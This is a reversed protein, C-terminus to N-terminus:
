KCSELQEESAVELTRKHTQQEDAHTSGPLVMEPAPLETEPPTEPRAEDTDSVYDHRCCNAIFWFIFLLLLFLSFRVLQV